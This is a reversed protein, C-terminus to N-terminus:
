ERRVTHNGQDDSEVKTHKFQRASIKNQFLIDLEFFSRNKIDAM